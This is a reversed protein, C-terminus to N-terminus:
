QLGQLMTLKRLLVERAAQTPQNKLNGEIRKINAAIQEPSLKAEVIEKKQKAAAEKKAQEEKLFDEQAKKQQDVDREEDTKNLELDIEKKDAGSEKLKSVIELKSLADNIIDVKKKGAKFAQGVGLETLTENLQNYKVADLTEFTVKQM